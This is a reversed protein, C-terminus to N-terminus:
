EGFRTGEVRRTCEFEVVQLAHDFLRYAAELSAGDVEVAEWRFRTERRRPEMRIAGRTHNSFAGRDAPETLKMGSFGLCALELVDDEDAFEIGIAEVSEWQALRDRAFDEAELGHAARLLMSEALPPAYLQVGLPLGATVRTPISIAPLGALNAPVTFVDSLYMQLPDATREGFRFAPGPATPMVIVDCAAFAADFDRRILTRVKQARLYYADYYGSSLVYTGLLIRRKVEDGFGQTRSQEYVAAVDRAGTARRTYRIGDFRSLNASAEATAVIYYVAICAPARALTVDVLVAGADRLAELVAAFDDAVAPDLGQAVFERPVGVRVGRLGAGPVPEFRPLAAPLCTSDRADAGAIAELVWAADQVTKALPGIQDLSSAFAVLGSRSVRGYTPKLGVVGCFGAPQRISGGTDTGLAFSALDAAVAAASGGSSGGPVCAPNWPNRTPGFASNETSSGMAFEDMNTKGILIAGAAHLREIATADYPAHFNELLKSGCTTRGLRTALVDKALYPIGWLPGGPAQEGLARAQTRAEEAFVQTVAHLGPDVAAIRELSADVLDLPSLERARLMRAQEAISGTVPNV